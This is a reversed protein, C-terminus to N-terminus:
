AETVAGTPLLTVEYRTVKGREVIRKYNKILVEVTTKKTSGYTLAFTRQEGIPAYTANPGTTATDDYMGGLTIPAMRKLGASIHEVDADGFTHSEETMIERDLVSITQTHQSMDQLSGGATADVEIVVNGGNYKATARM